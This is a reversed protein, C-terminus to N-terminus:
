CRCWDAASRCGAGVLLLALFVTAPSDQSLFKKEARQLAPAIMTKAEAVEAQGPTLAAAANTLARLALRTKTM